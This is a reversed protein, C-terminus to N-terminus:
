PSPSGGLEERGVVREIFGHKYAWLVLSEASGSTLALASALRSCLASYMLPKRVFFLLRKLRDETIFSELVAYVTFNEKGRYLAEGVFTWRFFDDPACDQTTYDAFIRAYPLMYPHQFAPSDQVPRQWLSDWLLCHQQIVQQWSFNAEVRQRAARGMRQCREPSRLLSSLAFALAEVDVVTRQAMMLHSESDGLLPAMVDIDETYAPGATPVLLGTVGDEVLDRYGDYASAIVPKGMAGAELLTLGFTEQVNDVPSLFIDAAWFLEKKRQDSPSDELRWRVGLAKAFSALITAFRADGDNWGAVCLTLCSLDEGQQRMRQLARFVPLIDMKSYHSLRAFILVMKQGEALGCSERAGQQEKLSAPRYAETDVGLPIREVAPRPGGYSFSRALEDYFRNMVGIATRSTAVVCDRATTGEWLHSSFSSMFRQYSLSHTPGTIPFIQRSYRNRVAALFAPSDVCDSLHFCHYPVDALQQPLAMRPFFRLKASISYPFLEAIIRQVHERDQKRSLFFHYQDFPDAQLLAQLFNANAVSRGMIGGSEFFPDLSAWIRSSEM